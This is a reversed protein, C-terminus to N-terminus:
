TNWDAKRERQLRLASVSPVAISNGLMSYRKSDSIEKGCNPCNFLAM